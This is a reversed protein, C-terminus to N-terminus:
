MDGDIAKEPGRPHRYLSDYSGTDVPSYKAIHEDNITGAPAINGDDVFMFCVNVITYIEKKDILAFKFSRTWFNFLLGIM